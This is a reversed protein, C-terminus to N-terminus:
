LLGLDRAREVADNRSTVDLKRYISMAHSKITHRSLFLREGIERFSLHTPLMPLLRLEANTLTSAGPAEASVSTLKSRLEDAETGLVGLGRGRRMLADTMRLLTRAGAVDARAAYVNAMEVASQAALPALARTLRPRLRQAHALLDDARSHEGRHVAVRASVVYVIMNTGYEQMRARGVVEEAEEALREAALWDDRRIAILAREALSVSVSNWAKMARSGDAVDAFEDDAVDDAGLLYESLALLVAAPSWWRHARGFGEAARQADQRMKEPGNLCLGAGVLAQASNVLVENPVEDLERRRREAADAWRETEGPQGRLACFWAAVLAALPDQDLHGSGALWEVWMDLTAARGLQYLDQVQGLFLGAARDADGADRAYSFAAEPDGNHACWDSARSLLEPVSEPEVRELEARLFERLLQHYRYHARNRDTATVFLNNRELEELRLASDSTELVADCLPGSMRALVSTRTLFRATEAPLRDLVQEHLYDALFRDDGRFAALNAAVNEAAPVALSALYVAAPWGETRATLSRVDEGPVNRGQIRMLESVEREDMRLGELGLEVLLGRARRSGIKGPLERQGALVVTSGPPVHDLLMDLADQCPPATIAHLDDLVLVFSKGISSMAAALKPVVAATISVEPTRLAEFVQDDISGIRDLAVAVYSLLAIPDNDSEDLTLWAFAHPSQDAWQRLLTTKGYGPPASIVVIPPGDAEELRELLRPRRITKEATKPQQLKSEILGLPATHSGAITAGGGSNM